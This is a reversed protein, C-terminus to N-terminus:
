PRTVSAVALVIVTGDSMRVQVGDVEGANNLAVLDVGVVDLLDDRCASRVSLEFADAPVAGIADAVAVAAVSATLAPRTAPFHNVAM